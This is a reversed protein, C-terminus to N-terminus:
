WVRRSVQCINSVEQENQNDAIDCALEIFEPPLEGVDSFGSYNNNDTLFCISYVYHPKAFSSYISRTWYSDKKAEIKFKGNEDTTAVKEKEACEANTFMLSMRIEASELPEGNKTLTGEIDPSRPVYHPFPACSSLFCSATILIIIHRM